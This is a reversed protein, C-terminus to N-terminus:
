FRFSRRWRASRPVAEDCRSFAASLDLAANRDENIQFAIRLVEVEFPRLPKVIWGGLLGFRFRVSAGNLPDGQQVGFLTLVAESRSRAPQQLPAANGSSDISGM